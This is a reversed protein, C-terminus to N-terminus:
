RNPRVSCFDKLIEITKILSQEFATFEAVNNTGEGFEETTRWMETGDFVLSYSGYMLGPNPKCGGDFYIEILM